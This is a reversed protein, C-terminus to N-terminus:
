YSEAQIDLILGSSAKGGKGVMHAALTAALLHQPLIEYQHVTCNIALTDVRRLNPVYM